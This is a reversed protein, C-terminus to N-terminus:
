ALIDRAMSLSTSTICAVSWTRRTPGPVSRLKEMLPMGAMLHAPSIFRGSPLTKVAGTRSETFPRM